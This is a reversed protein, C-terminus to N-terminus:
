LFYWNILRDGFVGFPDVAINFGALLGFVLLVSILFTVLWKKSSM